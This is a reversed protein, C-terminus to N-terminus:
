EVEHALAGGVWAVILAQRRERWATATPAFRHEPAALDLAILEGRIDGDAQLQDAYVALDDRDAAGAADFAARLVAELEERNATM